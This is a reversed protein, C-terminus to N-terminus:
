DGTLISGELWDLLETLKTLETWYIKTLGTLDFVLGFRGSLSVSKAGYFSL